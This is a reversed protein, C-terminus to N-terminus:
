VGIFEKLGTKVLRDPIGFISEVAILLPELQLALNSAVFYKSFGLNEYVIEGLFPQNQLDHELERCLV